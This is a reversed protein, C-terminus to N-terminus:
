TALAYQAQLERSKMRLFYRTNNMLEDMNRCHHNRTVFAHLDQWTREIKNHDPCYPPLFHLQIRQGAASALAKAVEETGHIAYNDLIVHIKRAQPYRLHLQWLLRIFLLTDKHDGEVWVLEGTKANLAGALYRKVNQGPTRVAKQRGRVMWDWGIKPNLHIDIEDEYVAVENEPLNDILERLERLRRNKARKSWSSEVIPKPRGRRAGIKHLADSMTSVHIQVGTQKRLTEVLMERTWTPRKWGHELPCSEVTEWLISLYEDDVKREGNAERRDVLGELGQEMFRAVVRYVTSRGVRLAKATDSASRGEAVNLIILYRAKLRGDTCTRCRKELKRKDRRSLVGIIGEM